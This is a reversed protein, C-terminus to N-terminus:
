LTKRIRLHICHVIQIEEGNFLQYVVMCESLCNNKRLIALQTKLQRCTSPILSHRSRFYKLKNFIDLQWTNEQHVMEHWNLTARTLTRKRKWPKKRYKRHKQKRNFYHTQFDEQQCFATECFNLILCRCNETSSNNSKICNTNIKNRM